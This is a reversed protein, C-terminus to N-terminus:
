RLDTDHDADERAAARPSGSIPSSRCVVPRRFARDNVGYGNETMPLGEGRVVSRPRRFGVAENHHNEPRFLCDFSLGAVGRSRVSQVV